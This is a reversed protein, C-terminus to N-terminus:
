MDFIYYVLLVVDMVNVLGDNNIDAYPNQEEAISLIMDVLYVVDLINIQIDTNVDGIQYSVSYDIHGVADVIQVQSFDISYDNTINTLISGSINSDERPDDMILVRMTTDSLEVVTSVLTNDSYIDFSLDCGDCTTLTLLIAAIYGDSVLDVSDYKLVVSVDTSANHYDLSSVDIDSFYDYVIHVFDLLDVSEDQNYDMGLLEVSSNILYALILNIDMSDIVGDQNVDGYFICNGEVTDIGTCLDVDGCVGDNDADNDADLPCDDVDGCIGDSDADDNADFPCPDCGDIQGDEDSDLSDDYGDCQDVDGCVGDGDADDDADNPCSDCGDAVGDLDTDVNDDFGDCVDLDNCITDYDSDFFVVVSDECYDCVGTAFVCLTNDEITASENYNCANVTTCGTCSSDDNDLNNDCVGCDDLTGLSFHNGYEYMYFELPDSDPIPASIIFYYDQGIQLDPFDWVYSGTNPIAEAVWGAVTGSELGDEGDPDILYKINVGWEPLGGTWNITVSTDCFLYDDLPIWSFWDCDNTPDNDCLDCHDLVADGDCVGLCDQSSNEGACVGCEDVVASGDCVGACDWAQNWTMSNTWGSLTWYFGQNECELQAANDTDSETDIIAQTDFDYCYPSWCDECTDFMSQGGCEGACDNYLCTDDDQVAESNYNCASSDTCGNQSFIFSTLIFLIYFINKM